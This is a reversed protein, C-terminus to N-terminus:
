SGGTTGKRIWLTRNGRWLRSSRDLDDPYASKLQSSIHGTVIVMNKMLLDVNKFVYHNVRQLLYDPHGEKANVLHYSDNIHGGGHPKIEVIDGETAFKLAIEQVTMMSKGNSIYM